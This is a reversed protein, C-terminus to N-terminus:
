TNGDNQFVHSEKPKSQYHATIPISYIEERSKHTMTNLPNKKGWCACQVGTGTASFQWTETKLM